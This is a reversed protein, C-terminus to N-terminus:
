GDTSWDDGATVGPDDAYASWAVMDPISGWTRLRRRSRRVRRWVHRILGVRTVIADGPDHMSMTVVDGAMLGDPAAVTFTVLGDEALWITTPLTFTRTLLPRRRM